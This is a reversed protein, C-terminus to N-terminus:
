GLKPTPDIDEFEFEKVEFCEQWQDRPIPLSTFLNPFITICIPSAPTNVIRGLASFHKNSDARMKANRHQYMPGFRKSERGIQLTFEGYMATQFDHDELFFPYAHRPEHLLLLSALNNQAAWHIQKSKDTIERRVADGITRVYGGKDDGQAFAHVTTIEVAIQSSKLNLRYDPTPHNATPIRKVSLGHQTAFQEFFEESETLTQPTKRV